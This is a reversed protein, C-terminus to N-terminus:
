TMFFQNTFYLPMCLKNAEKTAEDIGSDKKSPEHGEVWIWQFSTLVLRSDM